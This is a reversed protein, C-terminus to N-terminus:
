RAGAKKYGTYRLNIVVRYFYGEVRIFDVGSTYAPFWASGYNQFYTEFNPAQHGKEEPVPEGAVKVVCHDEDDIWVRGKLFRERNKDSKDPLKFRPKVDFVYTNLDDIRERGVYDVEYQKLTESTIIFHYIRTLNEATETGIYIGKPLTSSNEQVRERRTGDRDYSIQSFRYYKGTIIDAQSVTQITLEAFYTYNRLETQLRDGREAAASLIEPPSEKQIAQAAPPLARSAPTGSFIVAIIVTAAITLAINNGM